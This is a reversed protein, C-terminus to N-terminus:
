LIYIIPILTDNDTTVIIFFIIIIHTKDSTIKINPYM